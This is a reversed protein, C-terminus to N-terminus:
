RYLYLLRTTHLRDPANILQDSYLGLLGDHENRELRTIALKVDNASIVHANCHGHYNIRHQVIKQNERFASDDHEASTYLEEYKRCFLESIDAEGIANDVHSPLSSPSCKM